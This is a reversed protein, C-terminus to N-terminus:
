IRYKTYYRVRLTPVGEMSNEEEERNEEVQQILNKRDM